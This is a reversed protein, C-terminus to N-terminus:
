RESLPSLYRTVIVSVAIGILFIAGSGSSGTAIMGILGATVCIGGAFHLWTLWTVKKGSIDILPRFLGGLITGVLWFLISIVIGM